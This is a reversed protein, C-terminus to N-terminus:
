GRVAAQWFCQWPAPSPAMHSFLRQYRRTRKPLGQCFLSHTLGGSRSGRSTLGGDFPSSPAAAVERVLSLQRDRKAWFARVRM